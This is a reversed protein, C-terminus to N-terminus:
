RHFHQATPGGTSPTDQVDKYAHHSNRPQSSCNHTLISQIDCFLRHSHYKPPFPYQLPNSVSITRAIGQGSRGQRTLPYSRALRVRNSTLCTDDAGSCESYRKQHHLGCQEHQQCHTTVCKLMSMYHSGVGTNKYLPWLTYPGREIPMWNEHYYM